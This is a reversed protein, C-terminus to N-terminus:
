ARLYHNIHVRWGEVTGSWMRCRGHQSAEPLRLAVASRMSVEVDAGWPASGSFGSVGRSWISEPAVSQLVTLFEDAEASWMRVQSALEEIKDRLLHLEVAKRLGYDYDGDVAMDASRTLAERMKAYLYAPDSISDGTPWPLSRHDTSAAEWAPLAVPETTTM